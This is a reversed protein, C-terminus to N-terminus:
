KAMSSWINFMTGIFLFSMIAVCTLKFCVDDRYHESVSNTSANGSNETYGINEANMDGIEEAVNIIISRRCMPCELHSGSLNKHTLYNSFCVICVHHNCPFKVFLSKMPVNDIISYSELCIPCEM